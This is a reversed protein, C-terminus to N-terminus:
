PVRQAPRQVQIRTVGLHKLWLEEEMVGTEYLFFEAELRMCTARLLAGAQAYLADDVEGPSEGLVKSVLLALDLHRPLLHLGPGALDLDTALGNADDVDVHDRVVRGPGM